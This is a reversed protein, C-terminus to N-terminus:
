AGRASFRAWVTKKQLEIEQKKQTTIDQITGISRFARGNDDFFSEYRQIVFKISGDKLLVRHEIEHATRRKLSKVYADEVMERDDPHVYEQFARYTAVIQQPRLGFIQYVEDSWLLTNSVINMEWIGIHALQEAVSFRKENGQLTKGAQIRNSNDLAFAVYVPNNDYNGRQIRFEVTSSNGNKDKYTTEFTVEQRIKFNQTLPLLLVRISDVSHEPIIDIVTMERLEEITYGPIQTAAVNAYVFRLTDVDFMYINSPSKEIIQALCKEASIM